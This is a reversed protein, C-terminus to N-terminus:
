PRIGSVPEPIVRLPQRLRGRRTIALRGALARQLEAATVATLTGLGALVYLDALVLGGPGLRTGAPDLDILLWIASSALALEAAALVLVRRRGEGTATTALALAGPVVIAWHHTWSVPSVLLGTIATLLYGLLENEQRAARVAILLGVCAVLVCAPLWVVSVHALGPLLRLLAGRLSQNAPGAGSLHHRGTVRSIDFVTGSWYRLADRPVTVFSVAISLAFAGAARGAMRGRRTLLLYPIFILPTLKLAAALGIGIGGVRTRGGYAIDVIVLTAILLDIQGYGITSIVPEAWLAIAAAVWGARASRAAPGRMRAAAHAAIAVLLIDGLTVAQEAHVLSLWRLPMMVLVAFPPYTFGLGHRLHATYLPEGLAVVHVAARYVRLDFFGYATLPRMLPLSVVGAAGAAVTVASTLFVLRPWWSRWQAAAFTAV